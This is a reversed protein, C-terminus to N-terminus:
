VWRRRSVFLVLGGVLILALAGNSGATGGYSCGGTFGGPQGDTGPSGPTGSSGPTGNNGAVPAPPPSPPAEDADRVASIFSLFLSNRDEPLMRGDAAQVLPAPTSATVVHERTTHAAIFFAKVKPMFPTGSSAHYALNQVDGYCNLHERGQTQPNRGLMNNLYGGETNLASVAAQMQMPFTNTAPDHTIFSLSGTGFGTIPSGYIAVQYKETGVTGQKGACAVIHSSELAVNSQQAVMTYGNTDVKIKAIYSTSSGKKNRNRGAGNSIFTTLYIEGPNEGAVVTPSAPYIGNGGLPGPLGDVGGINNQDPKAPVVVQRWLVNMAPGNNGQVINNSDLLAVENGKESPRQQGKATAYAYLGPMGPVQVISPRGINSPTLRQPVTIDYPALSGDARTKIGVIMAYEAGNNGNQYYGSVFKNANEFLTRPAAENQNPDGNLRIHAEEPNPNTNPDYNGATLDNAQKDIILGYTQTNGNGQINNAGYMVLFHGAGDAAIAPQGLRDSNSFTIQRQAVVAPAGAASMKVIEVKIASPGRLNAVNNSAHVVAITDGDFALAAHENGTGLNQTARVAGSPLTKLAQRKSLGKDLKLEFIGHM